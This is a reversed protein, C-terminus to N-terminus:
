EDKKVIANLMTMIAAFVLGAVPWIIWNSKWNDYVFGMFLFIATVILWYTGAVAGVIRDGKKHEKSFEKEKLLIKYSDTISGILVFIYTAMAVMALLLGVMSIIMMSSAGIVAVIVLPVPCVVCLLVAAVILKNYLEETKSRKDKVMGDVGYATEFDEKTLYEYKDTKIGYGVFLFVAVAICGFLAGLGIAAAVNESMLGCDSIGALVILLIPSVVCLLVGLALKPALEKVTDLYENAEEMSVKRIDYDKDETYGTNEVPAGEIEDRLLYDTTVNFLEAMKLIKQLDPVAQAGEWKSVSQRSVSLKEALEEQSWGCRKRENIIKDALIM